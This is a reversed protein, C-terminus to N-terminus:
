KERTPLPDARFFGAFIMIAGYINIIILAGLFAAPDYLAYKSPFQFIKLILFHAVKSSVGV